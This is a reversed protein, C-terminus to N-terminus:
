PNNIDTKANRRRRFLKRPRIRLIRSWLPLPTPPAQDTSNPISDRLDPFTAREDHAAPLRQLQGNFNTTDTNSSHSGSQMEVVFEDGPTATLPLSAQGGPNSNDSNPDDWEPLVKAVRRHESLIKIVGEHGKVAAWSLPTRGYKTDPQDPNVDERELLIKVVGEHGREAAWSLPTQGYETDPLDPNVDERGLLMKVVGEHGSGAAWSLPTRGYETDPQDPNIDERELLMKVVAESGAMAAMLLPTWGNDPHGHNPDIDGQDLLMKVVAEQRRVVAKALAASGMRGATDFDEGKTELITAVAEVAEHVAM